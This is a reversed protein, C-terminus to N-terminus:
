PQPIPCPTPAPVVPQESIPRRLEILEDCLEPLMAGFRRRAAATAAARAAPAGWAKLVIDIPGHSLHLRGGTLQQALAPEFMVRRRPQGPGRAAPRGRPDVPPQANEGRRRGGGGEQRRDAQRGG